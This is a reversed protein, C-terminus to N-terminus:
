QDQEKKIPTEKYSMGMFLVMIYWWLLSPKDFHMAAVTVCVIYTAETILNCLMTWKFENM